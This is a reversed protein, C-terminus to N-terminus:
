LKGVDHTRRFIIFGDQNDMVVRQSGKSHGSSTSNGTEKFRPGDAAMASCQVRSELKETLGEWLLGRRAVYKEGNRYLRVLCIPKTDLRTESFELQTGGAVL